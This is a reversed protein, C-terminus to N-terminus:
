QDTVAQLGFRLLVRLRRLDDAAASDPPLVLSQVKGVQTRFRLVLLWHTVLLEGTLELPAESAGSVLRWQNNDYLLQRNGVWYHQRFHWWLSWLVVTDAVLCLWWPSASLWVAAAALSHSIGIFTALQLSPRLSITLEAM